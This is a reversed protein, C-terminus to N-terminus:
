DNILKKSILLQKINQIDRYEVSRVALDDIANIHKSISSHDTYNYHKQLDRYSIKRGNLSKVMEDHYKYILYIAIKKAKVVTDIQTIKKFTGRPLDFYKLIISEVNNVWQKNLNSPKPKYVISKTVFTKEKVLSTNYKLRSHYLKEYHNILARLERITLDKAKTNLAKDVSKM